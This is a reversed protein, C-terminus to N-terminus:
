CTFLELNQIPNVEAVIFTQKWHLRWLEILPRQMNRAMLYGYDLKFTHIGPKLGRFTDPTIYERGEDLSKILDLLYEESAFRRPLDFQMLFKKGHAFIYKDNLNKQQLTDWFQKFPKQKVRLLGKLSMLEITESKDVFVKKLNNEQVSFTLDKVQLCITLDSRAKPQDAQAKKSAAMKELTNLADEPQKGRKLHSYVEGVRQSKAAYWDRGHFYQKQMEYLVACFHYKDPLDMQAKGASIKLSRSAEDAEWRLQFSTAHIIEDKEIDTDANRDSLNSMGHGDGVIMENEIPVFCCRYFEDVGESLQRQHIM